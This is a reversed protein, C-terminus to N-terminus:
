IYFFTIIKVISHLTYLYNGPVFIVSQRINLGIDDSCHQKCIRITYKNM